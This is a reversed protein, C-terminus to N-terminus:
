FCPGSGLMALGERDGPGFTLRGVYKENMLEHRDDVYDLGLAHGLERMVVAQVLAAGNPRVMLRELQHADLAVAGTVYVHQATAGDTMYISHGLGATDGRLRPVEDPTTWDIVVPSRGYNTTLSDISSYERPDARRAFVLGTARAVHRVADGVIKDSGPPALEDRIAWPIKRCPDYAVPDDSTPQEASFSFTGVGHTTRPPEGLPQAQAHSRALDDPWAHPSKISAIQPWFPAAVAVVGAGVVGGIAWRRRRQRKVM